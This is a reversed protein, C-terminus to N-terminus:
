SESAVAGEQGSPESGAFLQLVLERMFQTQREVAEDALLDVGRLERYLPAIAFYGVVVHYLALVLLPIQDARWRAAAPGQEAMQQARELTPGVWDQLIRTLHRGGALTEHMVLRPLAPRAALIRMLSEILPGPDRGLGPGATAEAMAGIVPGIGRELVAAYLFEKSPFHNYLSPIRIGVQQAVDRLTTGAYGKEAFVEEAADLIREATELGKRGRRRPAPEQSSVNTRVWTQPM